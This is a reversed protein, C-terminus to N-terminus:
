HLVINVWDSIWTERSASIQEAPLGTPEIATQSFQIFEAPLQAQPNVPYVFMQLPMDEQFPVSLLFDVFKEALKREQTGKLIGVFEVQRFCTGPATMSGTPSESFKTEAYVVEAVPSSAYSVVLPQAGRGSSASFNTFYATNWDNVVVLGNSRLGEWFDLYNEEGFYKITAMLFALGTSSTAPNEMVLLNEYEPKLLDEFTSPVAVGRTSFWGKDFNICVDAYDVPLLYNGEDLQYQEPIAKLLSSPYSEFIGAELARSLFTNDVGYFVDALPAEKALIAKNLASGTDGSKIFALKVQNAAEFSAVLDASIEFSDHTMVRLTPNEILPRNGGCASLLFVMVLTCLTANRIRKKREPNGSEM